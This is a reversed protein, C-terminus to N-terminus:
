RRYTNSNNINKLNHQASQSSKSNSFLRVIVFACIWGIILGLIIGGAVDSPYSVGLYMRSFCVILTYICAFFGPKGGFCKAIIFTAAVCTAAHFSPFSYSEHQVGVVSNLGLVVDFPRAREVLLSILLSGILFCLVVSIILAFGEVRRNKAFLLMFFGIVLWIFGHNAFASFLAFLQVVFPIRIAQLTLLITGEM